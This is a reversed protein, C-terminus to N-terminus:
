RASVARHARGAADPAQRLNRLDHHAVAEAVEELRVLEAIEQGAARRFVAEGVHRGLLTCRGGAALVQTLHEVLQPRREHLEPLEERGPRVDHGRVDHDLQAPQLVVDPRERELLGLAHDLLLEAVRELPEEEVELVRRDRGRRDALHMPRRQRVPAADRDLHLPRACRLLDLGVEAQEVLCSPERALPDAREVEHVGALEHVLEGARDPLLEVVPLLAAVRLVEVAVEGAMRVDVHRLDVPLVRARPHQRELPDVPNLEGVDVQDSRAELLPALDRVPDGLRPHRHDEPVAEEVAIRM